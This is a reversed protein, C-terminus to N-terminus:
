ELLTDKYVELSTIALNKPIYDVNYNEAVSKIKPSASIIVVKSKFYPAISKIQEILWEGAMKPAYDVEMQMDTLICDYPEAFNNLLKTYGDQACNAFDVVADNGFIETVANSNFNRWGEQDDVILFKKM